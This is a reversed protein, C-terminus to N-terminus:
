MFNWASESVNRAMDRNGTGDTTQLIKNYTYGLLHMLGFNRQCWAELKQKNKKQVKVPLNFLKIDIDM